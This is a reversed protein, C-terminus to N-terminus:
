EVLELAVVELERGSVIESVPLGCVPCVFRQISELRRLESCNSCRVMVPVRQISLRSGSLPSGTCAMEYCSQLAEPSVGCLAGLKLHVTEVAAGTRSALEEEALEVISLAISMEHM